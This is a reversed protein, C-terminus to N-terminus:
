QVTNNISPYSVIADMVKLYTCYGWVLGIVPPLNLIVIYWFEEGLRIKSEIQMKVEYSTTILIPTLPLIFWSLLTLVKSAKVASLRIFFISLSLLSTISLYGISILISYSVVFDATLWESKYNYNDTVSYIIMVVVTAAAPLLVAKKYITSLKM